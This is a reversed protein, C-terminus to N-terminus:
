YFSPRRGYLVRGSDHDALSVILAGANKLHGLSFTEDLAKWSPAPIVLSQGGRDLRFFYYRTTNGCTHFTQESGTASTCYWTHPQYTRVRCGTDVKCSGKAQMSATYYVPGYTMQNLEGVQQLYEGVPLFWDFVFSFPVREWIIQLPDMGLFTRAKSLQEVATVRLEKRTVVSFPFPPFSSSKRWDPQTKRVLHVRFNASRPPGTVVEVAKMAEYIDNLIPKWGNQISLWTGSIDRRDLTERRSGTTHMGQSVSALSRVAGPLNGRAVERAASIVAKSVDRIHGVTKDLEGFASSANFDHGKVKSILKGILKREDDNTWLNVELPNFILDYGYNPISSKINGSVSYTEV